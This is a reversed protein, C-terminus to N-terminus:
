RADSQNDQSTEPHESDRLSDQWAQHLQSFQGGASILEEPTGDEIIQGDEVVLVRDAIMVTSLRHAIIFSTRKGLLEELGEQVVAETPADLSSTAEDLILVTPDALFARAFSVLQRQGASM